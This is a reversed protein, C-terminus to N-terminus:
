CRNRNRGGTMSDTIHFPIIETTREKVVSIKIELIFMSIPVFFGKGMGKRYRNEIVKKRAPGIFSVWAPYVGSAIKKETMPMKNM